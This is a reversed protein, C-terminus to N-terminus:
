GTLATGNLLATGNSTKDGEPVADGPPEPAPTGDPVQQGPTSIGGPPQQGPTSIGGPPQQGPTSIGGPVSQPEPRVGGTATFPSELRLRRWIGNEDYAIQSVIWYTGSQEARIPYSVPALAGPYLETTQSGPADSVVGSPLSPTIVALTSNAGNYTLLVTVMVTEGVAAPSPVQQSATLEAAAMGSIFGTGLLLIIPLLGLHKMPENNKLLRSKFIGTMRSQYSTSVLIEGELGPINRSFETVL